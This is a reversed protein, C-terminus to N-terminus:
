KRIKSFVGQLAPSTCDMCSYKGGQLSYGGEGLNIVKGCQACRTPEFAPPNTLTEFNYENTGYYVYMETPVNQRCKSCDQWKGEHGEEFHHGCLTFRRHNRSCSNRAYSFLVYQDEDDCIWQGCCDTKTLNNTAGCLGCCRPGASQGKARSSRREGRLIRRPPQQSKKAVRVEKEGWARPHDLVRTDKCPIGPKRRREVSPAPLRGTTCV